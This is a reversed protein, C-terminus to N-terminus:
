PHQVMFKRAIATGEGTIKVIYLGGQWDKVPIALSGSGPLMGSFVQRGDISFVQVQQGEAAAGQLSIWVKDDAPNPVIRLDDAATSDPVAGALWKLAIENYRKESQAFTSDQM